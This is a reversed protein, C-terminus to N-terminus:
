VAVVRLRRRLLALGAGAMGIGGLLLGGPEPAKQTSITFNDLLYASSDGAPANDVAVSTFQLTDINQFNLTMFENAQGATFSSHYVVSGSRFGTATIVTGAISAFDAGVFTFRGLSAPLITATADGGFAVNPPSPAAHGESAAQIVTLGSWNLGGYGAPIASGNGPLNDFTIVDARADASSLALVCGVALPLWITRNM